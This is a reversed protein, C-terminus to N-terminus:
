RMSAAITSPGPPFMKMLNVPGILVTDALAALNSASTELKSFCYDTRRSSSTARYGPIRKDCPPLVAQRGFFRRAGPAGRSMRSIAWMRWSIPCAEIRYSINGLMILWFEPCEGHFHGKDARPMKEGPAM